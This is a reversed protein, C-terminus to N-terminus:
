VDRAHRPITREQRPIQHRAQRRRSLRGAHRQGTRARAIPPMGHDTQPRHRQPLVQTLREDLFVHVLDLGPRGAVANGDAVPWRCGDVGKEVDVRGRVGGLGLTDRRLLAVKSRKIATAALEYNNYFSGLSNPSHGMGLKMMAQRTAATSATQATTTRLPM